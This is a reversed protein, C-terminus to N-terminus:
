EYIILLYKNGVIHLFIEKTKCVGRLAWKPMGFKAPNKLPRWDAVDYQIRIPYKEDDVRKLDARTM